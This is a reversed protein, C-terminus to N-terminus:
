AICYRTVFTILVTGLTYILFTRALLARTYQDGAKISGVLLAIAFALWLLYPAYHM